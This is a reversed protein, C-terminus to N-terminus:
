KASLKKMIQNLIEKVNRRGAFVTNTNKREKEENIRESDDQQKLARIKVNEVYQKAAMEAAEFVNNLRLAAEAISGSEQLKIERCEIERNAEALKKELEEIREGQEVLIELLDSRSMKKLDKKKM